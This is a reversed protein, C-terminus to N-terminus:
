PTPPTASVLDFSATGRIVDNVALTIDYATCKATGNISLSSIVLAANSNLAPSEKGMFDVDITAVIGTGGASTVENLPPSQYVKDSGSPLDLTSVDIQQSGSAASDGGYKVTVKTAKYAKGGFTFNTGQSDAIAPAGSSTTTAM